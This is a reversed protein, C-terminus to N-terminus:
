KHLDDLCKELMKDITIHNLKMLGLLVIMNNKNYEELASSDINTYNAVDQEFDACKSDHEEVLASLEENTLNM